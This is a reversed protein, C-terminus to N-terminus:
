DKQANDKGEEKSNKNDELVISLAILIFGAGAVFFVRSKGLIWLYYGVYPIHLIVKGVVNDYSVRKADENDNADGKTTIKKDDDDIDTIRHTVTEDDSIMYTIVDGEKLDDFSTEKAFVMSGVPISPAMSGSTVAYPHIGVFGCVSVPVVLIVYLAILIDVVIRAAKKPM